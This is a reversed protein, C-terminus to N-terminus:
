QPKSRTPLTIMFATGQDLTSKVEISGAHQKVIDYSISLGLGTGVGVPKTTFFPDFLQDLNQDNIGAGNDAITIKIHENMKETTLIIKGHDHEIAQVANVILNMLVQNIQGSLCYIDPIDGYNKVIEVDYKIQHGIVKLTTDLSENINVLEFDASDIRSFNKLNLVIDTVRQIGECTEEILSDVDSLIFTLQKDENTMAVSSQQKYHDITQVLIAMYKKITITNSQIFSMPNNIEHAIGAALQGISAMKSSQVLQSQTKQLTALTQQLQQNRKEIKAHNKKLQVNSLYLERSKEELLQEAKKRAERERALARKLAGDNMM